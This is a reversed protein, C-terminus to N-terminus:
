EGRSFMLRKMEGLLSFSRDDVHINPIDVKGGSHLDQSYAIYPLYCKVYLSIFFVYITNLTVKISILIIASISFQSIKLFFILDAKTL